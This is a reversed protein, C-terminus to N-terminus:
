ADGSFHGNAKPCVHGTPDIPLDCLPCIPRGGAVVEAIKRCLVRCQGRSLQCRFAPPGAAAEADFAHVAFLGEEEAYGLALQSARLEIDFADGFPTPEIDPETNPQERDLKEIVEEFWAGLGQLQQKEMWLAATQGSSRVMLRFRRQGPQGIAEADVSVATGFDYRPTEM